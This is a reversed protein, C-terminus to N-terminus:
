PAELIPNGGISCEAGFDRVALYFVDARVMSMGDQMCVEKLEQDAVKRWLEANILGERMARYKADHEAAGRMSDKTPVFPDVPDSPGDWAFGSYLIFGSEGDYEVFPMMFPNKTKIRSEFHYDQTLQFCNKGFARYFIKKDQM